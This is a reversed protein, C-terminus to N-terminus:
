QVDPSQENDEGNRRNLDKIVGPDFTPDTKGPTIISDRSSDTQTNSSSGMNRDRDARDRAPTEPPAAKTMLIPRNETPEFGFTLPPGVPEGDPRMAAPGLDSTRDAPSFTLLGIGCALVCVITLFLSKNKM